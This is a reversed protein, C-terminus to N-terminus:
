GALPDDADPHHHWWACLYAAAALYLRTATPDTAAADLCALTYKVHHADNVGSAATALAAGTASPDPAHWAASAALMPADGLAAEVTTATPPPVFDLDVTGRGQTAWHAALYAASVFTAAGADAGATALLLPAQALTLCHTWGYPAQSDPGQLMAQAAFRQLAFPVVAPARFSGDPDLLATFSGASEAHQVMPAIFFSPPPSVPEVTALADLLEAGRRADDVM